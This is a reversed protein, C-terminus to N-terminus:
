QNKHISYGSKVWGKIGNKLHYLKEFGNDSLIKLATVSRNGSRCYVLIPDKKNNLIKIYDTNLVQVPILVADKIHGELFEGPTRVDLVVITNNEMLEAAQDSSLHHIGQTQVSNSCGLILGFVWLCIFSIRIKKLYIMHWVMMNKYATDLLSVEGLDM